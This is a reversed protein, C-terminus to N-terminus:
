RGAAFVHLHARVYIVGDSLAPNSMPLEGVRNKSLRKERPEGEYAARDWVVEGTKKDLAYLKWQHVSRDAAATGEGYLGPKFGDDGASSVATTV